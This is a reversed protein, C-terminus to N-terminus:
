RIQEETELTNIHNTIDRFNNFDTTMNHRWNINYIYTIM